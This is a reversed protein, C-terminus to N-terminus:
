ATGAAFALTAVLEAHAGSLGFRQQLWYVQLRPTTTIDDLVDAGSVMKSARAVTAVPRPNRKDPPM